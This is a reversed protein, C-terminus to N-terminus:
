VAKIVKNFRSIWTFLLKTDIVDGCCLTHHNCRFCCGGKICTSTISKADEPYFIHTKSRNYFYQCYLIGNNYYSHTENECLRVDNLKSCDIYKKM